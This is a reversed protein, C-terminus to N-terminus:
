RKFGIIRTEKIRDIVYTDTNTTIAIHVEKFPIEEILKVIKNLQKMHEVVFLCRGKKVIKIYCKKFSM